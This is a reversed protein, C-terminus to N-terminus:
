LYESHHTQILYNLRSLLTKNTTYIKNIPPPPSEELFIQISVKYLTAIQYLRELDIKRKGSELDSYTNQCMNLLEAIQDQSYGSKKRLTKLKRCVSAILFYEM